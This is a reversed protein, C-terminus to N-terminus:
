SDFEEKVKLWGERLGVMASKNRRQQLEDHALHARSITVSQSDSSKHRKSGEISTSATRRINKVTVIKKASGQNSLQRPVPVIIKPVKPPPPAARIVREFVSGENSPSSASGVIEESASGENSPSSARAMECGRRIAEEILLQAGYHYNAGARDQLVFFMGLIREFSTSLGEHGKLALAGPPRYFACDQWLFETVSRSTGRARYHANSQVLLNDALYNLDAPSYAAM